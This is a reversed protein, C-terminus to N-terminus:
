AKTQPATRAWIVADGEVVAAPVFPDPQAKVNLHWGNGLVVRLAGSKFGVASVIPSGIWHRLVDAGPDALTRLDANPAQASGQSIYAGYGVIIRAGSDLTITVNEDLNVATVRSGRLPLIWRDDLEQTETAM